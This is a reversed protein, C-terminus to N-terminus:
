HTQGCSGIGIRIALCTLLSNSWQSYRRLLWSQPLRSLEKAMVFLEVASYINAFRSGKEHCEIPCSRSVLMAGPSSDARLWRISENPVCPWKCKYKSNGRCGNTTTMWSHLGSERRRECASTALRVAASM